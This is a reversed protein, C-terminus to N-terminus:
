AKRRHGPWGCQAPDSYECDHQDTSKTWGWPSREIDLIVGGALKLAEDPTYPNPNSLWQTQDMLSQAIVTRLEDRNM